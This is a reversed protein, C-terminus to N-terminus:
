TYVHINENREKYAQSVLLRRATLFGADVNERIDAAYVLERGGREVMTGGFEFQKWNWNWDM